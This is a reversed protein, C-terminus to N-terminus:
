KFVPLNTADVEFNREPVHKLRWQDHLNFIDYAKDLDLWGRLPASLLLLFRIFSGCLVDKLLKLDEGLPLEEPLLSCSFTALCAKCVPENCPDEVVQLHADLVEVEPELVLHHKPLAM